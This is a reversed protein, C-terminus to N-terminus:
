CGNEERGVCVWWLTAAFLSHVRMSKWLKAVQQHGFRKWGLLKSSFPALGFFCGSRMINSRRVFVKSCVGNMKKLWGSTLIAFYSGAAAEVATARHHTHEKRTTRGGCKRLRGGSAEAFNRVAKM